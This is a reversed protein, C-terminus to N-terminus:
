VEPKEKPTTDVFALVDKNALYMVFYPGPEAAALVHMRECAKELGEVSSLWRVNADEPSCGCFIDFMPPKM